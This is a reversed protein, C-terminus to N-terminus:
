WSVLNYSFAGVKKGFVTLDGKIVIGGPSGFTGTVSLDGEVIDLSLTDSLSVMSATLTGTLADITWFLFVVKIDATGSGANYDWDITLVGPVITWSGSNGQTPPTTPAAAANTMQAPTMGTTNSTTSLSTGIIDASM